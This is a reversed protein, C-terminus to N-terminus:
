PSSCQRAAVAEARVRMGETLRDSPTVVVEDREGLGVAVGVRDGLDSDVVVPRWRIVGREVVAMRTGDGTAVLATSPVYLPAAARELLLNLQVYMGALLTRDANACVYLSRGGADELSCATKKGRARLVRLADALEEAHAWSSAPEARLDLRVGSIQPDLSIRWLKRLLAVHGRSGPTQEIRLSVAHAAAPM